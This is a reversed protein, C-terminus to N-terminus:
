NWSSVQQALEKNRQIQTDLDEQLKKLKNRLEQAEPDSGRLRKNMEEIEDECRELNDKLKQNISSLSQENDKKIKLKEELDTVKSQAKEVDLTLDDLKILLEKNEAQLTELSQDNKNQGFKAKSEVSHGGGGGVARKLESLEEELNEVLVDKGRINTFLEQIEEELEKIIDKLELRTATERM